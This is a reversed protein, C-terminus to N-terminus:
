GEQWERITTRFHSEMKEKLRLRARHLRVKVANPNLGMIRGIEELSQEGQYFHTLIQADEPGLLRIAEQVAAQRSRFEIGRPLHGTEPAGELPVTRIRKKRLFTLCSTRVIIYLWTSFKAEGRFDALSRYAKVFSDQAVEEADERNGTFRFALTFVYSQYREVLEAFLPAEGQLIRQILASDSYGKYM